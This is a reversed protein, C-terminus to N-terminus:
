IQDGAAVDIPLDLRVALVSLTAVETDEARALAPPVATHPNRDFAPFRAGSVDLRLCTGAPCRWAIPRLEVVHESATGLEFPRCRRVGESLARSAGDPSVLALTVVLDHTPRDCSVLVAVAPSGALDLPEALAESTYCLVDRRDEAGSEDQHDVPDGPYPVLPEVVLM